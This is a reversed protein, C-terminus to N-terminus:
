GTLKSIENGDIRGHLHGGVAGEHIFFAKGFFKLEDAGNRGIKFLGDREGAFNAFIINDSSFFAVGVVPVDATDGIFDGAANVDSEVEEAITGIFGGDICISIIGVVAVILEGDDFLFFVDTLVFRKVKM